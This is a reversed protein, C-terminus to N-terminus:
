NTHDIFANMRSELRGVAEKVDEVIGFREALQEMAAILREERKGSTVLVWRVLWALGGCAIIFLVFFIMDRKLGYLITNNIVSDM